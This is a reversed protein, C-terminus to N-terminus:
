YRIALALGAGNAALRPSDIYCPGHARRALVANQRRRNGCRRERRDSAAVVIRCIERLVFRLRVISSFAAKAM